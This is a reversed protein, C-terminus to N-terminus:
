PKPFSRLAPNDGSSMGHSRGPIILQSKAVALQPRSVGHEADAELVRQRCQQLFNILNTLGEPRFWGRLATNKSAFTVLAIHEVSEGGGEDEKTAQIMGMTWNMPEPELPLGLAEWIDYETKADRTRAEIPEREPQEGTENFHVQDKSQGM